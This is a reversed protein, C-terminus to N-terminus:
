LVIEVKGGQSDTHVFYVEDEELIDKTIRNQLEVPLGKPFKINKINPKLSFLTRFM